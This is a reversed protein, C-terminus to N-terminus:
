SKPAMQLPCTSLRTHYLPSAGALRVEWSSHLSCVPCGLSPLLPASTWAAIQRLPLPPCELSLCCCVCLFAQLCSIPPPNVMRSFVLFHSFPQHSQSALLCHFGAQTRWPARVKDRMWPNLFSPPPIM